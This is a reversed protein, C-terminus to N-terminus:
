NRMSRKVVNWIEAAVREVGQNAYVVHWGFEQALTLHIHRVKGMLVTNEEHTHGVEQSGAFPEGDLLISVDPQLLTSNLTVLLDKDVGTGIGWAIGTGVYDEVVLPAKESKSRLHPIADLRNQINILQFERPTLNHPNKRGDVERLYQNLIPGTPELNYLPFKMYMPWEDKNWFHRVLEKAQTTKGVGNIGYLAIIM